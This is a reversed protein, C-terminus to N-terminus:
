IHRNRRRHALKPSSVLLCALRLVLCATSASPTLISVICFHGAPTDDLHRRSVVATLRIIAAVSCTSVVAGVEPPVVFQVVFKGRIPRTVHGCDVRKWRRVSGQHHHTGYQAESQVGREDQQGGEHNRERCRQRVRATPVSGTTCNCLQILYSNVHGLSLSLSPRDTLNHACQPLRRQSSECRMAMPSTTLQMKRKLSALLFTTTV